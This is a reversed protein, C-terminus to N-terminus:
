IRTAWFIPIWGLLIVTTMAMGIQQPSHTSDTIMQFIGIPWVAVNVAVGLLMIIKRLKDMM